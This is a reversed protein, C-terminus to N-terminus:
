TDPWMHLLETRSFFTGDDRQVHHV